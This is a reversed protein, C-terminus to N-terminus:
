AADILEAFGNLFDALDNFAEHDLPIHFEERENWLNAFSTDPKTACTAAIITHLRTKSQKGISWDKSPSNAILTDLHPGLPWKRYAAAVCLTEINGAVDKPLMLVVVHPFGRAKAVVRETPPVSFGGAKRLEAQVEEFSAKPNTDNDSVILVAKVNKIFSESAESAVTKLYAGFRSRGGTNGKLGPFQVYFRDDLKRARILRDILKKDDEGECLILWPKEFEYELLRRM